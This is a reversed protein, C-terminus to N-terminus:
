GTQLPYNRVKSADKAKNFESLGISGSSDLLLLFDLFRRSGGSKKFAVGRAGMISSGGGGGGGGMLSDLKNAISDGVRKEESSLAARAVDSLGLFLANNYLISPNM